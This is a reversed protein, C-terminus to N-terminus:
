NPKFQRTITKIKKSFEVPFSVFELKKYIKPLLKLQQIHYQQIEALSPMYCALKGKDIMKVLLPVGDKLNNGEEELALIDRKIKDNRIIRIIQKPGPYTQKGPSTKIKYIIKNYVSSKRIGSAPYQKVAVLKYVGGMVPDDRS